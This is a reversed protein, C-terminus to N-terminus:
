EEKILPYKVLYREDSLIVQHALKKEVNVVIPAKLNATIKKIDSNLTILNYVAVQEPNEVKLQEIISASLEFEYEKMFEFPSILIFGLEENDISHLVKFVENGKFPAIIFKKYEEFGPIGKDFTIIDQECYELIGHVKTKLEM